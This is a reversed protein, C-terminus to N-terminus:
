PGTPPPGAPPTGDPRRFPQGLAGLLGGFRASSYTDLGVAVPGPRPHVMTGFLRDWVSLMQGYNSNTETANRSHHLAHLDPTVLVLGAGRMVRAPLGLDAHALSQTMFALAAYVAVHALPLDLLWACFSLAIATPVVELPHHRITTTVDLVRDAHHVSHLRWLPEVHHSLVHSFYATADLAILAFALSAWGPWDRLWGALPSPGAISVALVGLVAVWAFNVVQELAFLALNTVWREASESTASRQRWTELAAILVFALAAWGGM